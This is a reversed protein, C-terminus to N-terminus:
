LSFNRLDLLNLVRDIRALAIALSSNGGTHTTEAIDFDDPCSSPQYGELYFSQKPGKERTHKFFKM